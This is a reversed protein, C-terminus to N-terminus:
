EDFVYKVEDWCDTPFIWMVELSKDGINRLGHPCSGPVYVVSGKRVKQSQSNQRLLLGTGSHILYIEQPLHFHLKLEEAVPIQILGCSLGHSNSATSDVLYKWRLNGFEARQQWERDDLHSIFIRDM